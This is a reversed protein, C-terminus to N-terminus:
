PGVEGLGEGQETPTVEGQRLLEGLRGISPTRVLLLDEPRELNRRGGLECLDLRVSGQLLSEVRLEILGVVLQGHGVELALTHEGGLQTAGHAAPSGVLRGDPTGELSCGLLLSCEDQALTREHVM